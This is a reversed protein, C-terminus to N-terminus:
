AKKNKERISFAIDSILLGALLGITLVSLFEIARVNENRIIRQYNALALMLAVTLIVRKRGAM